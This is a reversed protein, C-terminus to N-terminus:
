TATPIADLKSGLWWLAGDTEIARYRETEGPGGCLRAAVESAKAATPLVRVAHVRADPSYCGPAPVVAYRIV